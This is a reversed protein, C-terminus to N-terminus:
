FNFYIFPNYTAQICSLMSVVLVFVLLVSKAAAFVTCVKESEAIKPFKGSIISRYPICALVAIFFVFGGNFLLFSAQEFGANGKGFMCCLYTLMHSINEARFMVWGIVVFLLTFIRFCVLKFGKSEKAKKALGFSREIQLLVFYYIGWLWFTFNAGHWIGTLAWVVFLNFVCRLRGARNGGLPIYVYDRFWSSLSIHWRRWFDTISRAAYPYNFNEEFKFGFMLGLGIAMDSYGSFDFYIQLTYGIAGFWAGWVTLDSAQMGFMTDAIIAMYNALLCKKGLGIIFRELGKSFDNFNECRNLIQDQVTEYRVIPGAILQPFLSIYLALNAINKQVPVNRRYVDITYSLIQFTFFSIGIPLAIKIEPLATLPVISRFIESLFSLYKFVFLLGINWIISLVLFLKAKKSKEGNKISASDILLGLIYNVLISFLMIFVFVPEGWAYFGLSALLLVANKYSRSKFCPLYYLFLVAPLFGFIFVLSSFVM